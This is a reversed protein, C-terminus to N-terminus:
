CSEGVQKNIEYVSALLCYLNVVENCLTEMGWCEYVEVVSYLTSALELQSPILDMSLSFDFVLIVEADTFFFQLARNMLMIEECRTLASM